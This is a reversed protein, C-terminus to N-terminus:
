LPPDEDPPEDLLLLDPKIALTRILAVRQRMGGSLENPHKKLFDQLSASVM